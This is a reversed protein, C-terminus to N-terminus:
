LDHDISNAIDGWSELNRLTAECKIKVDRVADSGLFLTGNWKRGQAIGEGRVVDVIAGAARNVNGPQTGNSRRLIEEVNRRITVYEPVELPGYNAQHTLASSFQAHSINGNRLGGPVVNLVRINMPKLEEALADAIAHIAAKSSSYLGTSPFHQYWGSRSGVFVITGSRQARMYPLFANTVNVHGFVNTKFMELLGDVRSEEITGIISYGANNVLVDVYGWIAVAQKAKASITEFTDTVDLQLSHFTEPFASELDMVKDHCRATGIVRDGRSLAVVALERGLGASTGTIVWVKPLSLDNMSLNLQYNTRASRSNNNSM